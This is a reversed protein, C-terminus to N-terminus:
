RREYTVVKLDDDLKKTAVSAFEDLFGEPMFADADKVKMPVKTILWKEIHPLFERYVQAGGIV